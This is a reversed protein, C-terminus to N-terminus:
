YSVTVAPGDLGAGSRMAGDVTLSPAGPTVSVSYASRITCNSKVSGTTQPDPEFRDESNSIRCSAVVSVSVALTNAAISAGGAGPVAALVVLALAGALNRLM